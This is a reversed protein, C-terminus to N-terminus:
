KEMMKEDRGGRENYSKMSNKKGDIEQCIYSDQSLVRFENSNLMCMAANVQTLGMM